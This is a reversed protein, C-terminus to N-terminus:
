EAVRQIFGSSGASWVLHFPCSRERELFDAVIPLHRQNVSWNVARSDRGVLRLTRIDRVVMRMTMPIRLRLETVTDAPACWEKAACYSLLLAMVSLPVTVLTSHIFGWM